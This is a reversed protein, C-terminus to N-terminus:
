EIEFVHECIPDGRARAKLVRHKAKPNVSSALGALTPWAANEDIWLWPINFSKASVMMLCFSRNRHIVKDGEVKATPEVKFEQMFANVVKALTDLDDGKLSLKAMLASGAKKGFDFSFARAGDTDCKFTKYFDLWSTSEPMQWANQDSM